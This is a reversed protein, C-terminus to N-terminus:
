FQTPVNIDLRRPIIRTVRAERTVRLLSRGTSHIHNLYYIYLSLHLIHFLSIDIYIYINRSLECQIVCILRVFDRTKYIYIYIDKVRTAKIVRIDSDTDRWAHKGGPEMVPAGLTSMRILYGKIIVSLGVSICSCGVWVNNLIEYIM